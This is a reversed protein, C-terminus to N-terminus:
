YKRWRKIDRYGDMIYKGEYSDALSFHLIISMIMIKKLKGM